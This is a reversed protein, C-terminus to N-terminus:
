EHILHANSDLLDDRVEEAAMAVSDLESVLARYQKAERLATTSSSAELVAKKHALSFYERLHDDYQTRLAAAEVADVLRDRTVPKLLYDDFAMEVIDLTPEVATVMVVQGEVGRARLRELTEDGSLRPMQRDLLVVDPPGVDDLVSLAGNGSEATMVDYEESLWAAYLDTLSPDDDVALVTPSVPTM